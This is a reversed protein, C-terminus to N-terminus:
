ARGLGLGPRFQGPFWFYLIHMLFTFYVLKLDPGAQALNRGAPYGADRGLEVEDPAAACSGAAPLFLLPLPTLRRLAQRKPFVLGDM